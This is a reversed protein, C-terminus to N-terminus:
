TNSAVGPISGPYVTKCVTADGSRWTAGPSNKWPKEGSRLHFTDLIPVLVTGARRIVAAGMAAAIAAAARVTTRYEGAFIRVRRLM